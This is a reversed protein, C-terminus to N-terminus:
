CSHLAGPGEEGVPPGPFQYLWEFNLTCKRTEWCGQGQTQGWLFLFKCECLFRCVFTHLQKCDGFDPLLVRGKSPSPHVVLGDM